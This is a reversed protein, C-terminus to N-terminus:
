GGSDYGSTELATRAQEFLARLAMGLVRGVFARLRHQSVVSLDPFVDELAFTLHARPQEGRRYEQLRFTEAEDGTKSVLIVLWIETRADAPPASILTVVVYRGGTAVPHRFGPSPRGITGSGPMTEISVGTPVDLASTLEALLQRVGDMVDGALADLQQHTVGGVTTMLAIVVFAYHAYSAQLVPHAAAFAESTM